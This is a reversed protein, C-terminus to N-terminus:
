NEAQISLFGVKSLSPPALLMSPITDSNPDKDVMLGTPVTVMDPNVDGLGVLPVNEVRCLFKTTGSARRTVVEMWGAKSLNRVTVISNGVVWSKESVVTNSASMTETPNAIVDGLFSSAPKPDASAYTYRSLWDYCVETPADVEQRGRNALLLQRSIFKIYIHRASLRLTLFWVYVVYYSLVRLHQSLAFSIEALTEPRNHHQLYQLAVGFVMRYHNENFNAYLAPISAVMSLFTLIHVAMSPNTMIQSLKELIHPLSRIMAPQMEFVCLSLAHLCYRVTTTTGSLGAQFVEVLALRENLDFSTQYSILVTLAHYALGQADRPKLNAPWDEAPIYKGITGETIGKLVESLFHSIVERAKPGCWFHKNALQIPIHVLVYSLIDWKRETALIGALVQLYASVPLVAIGGGKSSDYTILMQSAKEAKEVSFPALDPATWLPARARISLPTAPPMRARGAVRSRSRSVTRDSARIGKGRVAHRGDREVLSPRPRPRRLDEPSAEESRAEEPSQNNAMAPKTRDILSALTMVQPNLDSPTTKMYVRHDRDARLRMLVQLVVLRAKVCKATRLLTLLREFIYIALRVQRDTMQSSTFSLQTFVDVLATVAAVGRCLIPVATSADVCVSPHISSVDKPTLTDQPSQVQHRSSGGGFSFMALSLLPQPQSPLSTDRERLLLPSETQTRSLVPSGAYSMTNAPTMPIQPSLPSLIDSSQVFSSADDDFCDCTGSVDTMARLSKEITLGLTPGDENTPTFLEETEAEQSRLIVEDGILKWMTSGDGGENDSEVLRMWFDFVMESLPRRYSPMDNVLTFVANLQKLIAARTMPRSPAYLCDTQLLKTWNTLWDCTIPTLLQQEAMMNPIKQTDNDALHDAISLLITSLPPQLQTTLQDRGLIDAIMRLLPSPASLANALSIVVPSGDSM